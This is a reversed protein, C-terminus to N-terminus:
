MAMRESNLTFSTENVDISGLKKLKWKIICTMENQNSTVDISILEIRDDWKRLAESISSKITAITGTGQQEFVLERVRCGFDPRMYREGFSTMVIWLISSAIVYKDDKSELLSKLDGKWPLSMGCFYRSM